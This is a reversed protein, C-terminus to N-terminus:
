YVTVGVPNALFSNPFTFQQNIRRPFGGGFVNAGSLQSVTINSLAQNINRQFGSDLNNYSSITVVDDKAVNGVILGDVENRFAGGTSAAFFDTLRIGTPAEGGEQLVFVFEASHRGSSLRNGAGYYPYIQTVFPTSGQPFQGSGYFPQLLQRGSTVQFSRDFLTHSIPGRVNVTYLGGSKTLATRPVVVREWRGLEWYKAVSTASTRNLGPESYVRRYIILNDWTDSPAQFRLRYWRNIRSISGDRRVDYASDNGGASPVFDFSSLNGIINQRKIWEVPVITGVSPFATVLRSLALNTNKIQFDFVTNLVTGSTSFPVVARAYLSENCDEIQGTVRNSFQATIVWEYRTNHRYYTGSLDYIIRDTTLNAASGIDIENFRPNTGARVERFRIKYGRFRSNDPPVFVFRLTSASFGAFINEVVPVIDNGVPFQKNPDQDVTLLNFGSPIRQSALRAAARSETGAIVFDFLGIHQEVPARVPGMQKEAVTGDKYLLRVIFDYSQFATPSFEAATPFSRGGFDGKLDFTVQQGTFYNPGFVLDEYSYYTDNRFKYYVRLGKILDNAPSAFAYLM